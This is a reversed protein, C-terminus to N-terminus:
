SGLTAGHRGTAASAPGAGGGPPPPPPTKLGLIAKAERALEERDLPHFLLQQLLATTWGNEVCYLVPVKDLGPSLRAQRLVQDARPASLDQDLIM